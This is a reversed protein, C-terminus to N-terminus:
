LEAGSKFRSLGKIARGGRGLRCALMEFHRGRMSEYVGSRMHLGCVFRAFPPHKAFRRYQKGETEM